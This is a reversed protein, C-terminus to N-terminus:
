AEKKRFALYEDVQCGKPDKWRIITVESDRTFKPYYNTQLDKVMEDVSNYGDARLEEADVQSAIKFAVNTCIAEVCFGNKSWCLYLPKGQEYSRHGERISINKLMDGKKMLRVDLAANLVAEQAEPPILLAQLPQRM